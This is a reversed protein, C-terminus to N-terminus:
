RIWGKSLTRFEDSKAKELWEFVLMEQSILVVGAQELRSLALQKNQETRSGVAEVVIFVQYGCALADMATQLVCVHAETGILILQTRGSRELYTLVTPEKLASFHIKELIHKPNLLALLAPVTGGLGQPYQETALVPIALQNAVEVVWKAAAEVADGDFIAPSLKTQIDILLVLSQTKNVLSSRSSNATM